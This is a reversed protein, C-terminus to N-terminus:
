EDGSVQMKGREEEMGNEEKMGEWERFEM